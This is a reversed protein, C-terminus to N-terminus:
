EAPHRSLSLVYRKFRQYKARGCEFTLRLQDAVEQAKRNPHSTAPRYVKEGPDAGGERLAARIAKARKGNM